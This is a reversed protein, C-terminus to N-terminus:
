SFAVAMVKQVSEDQEMAEAFAQVHPYSSLPKYTYNSWQSMVYAYADLVTKKDKYIHKKDVLMADLRNMVKDILVMAAERVQEISETDTATTYREPSFYPWFAPHFDGTLFAAIENFLFEDEAGLDPGLDAEPYKAVLYQLIANAQTKIVGPESELAPVAGSPNIKMYEPSGLEVAELEYDAGMWELAIWVAVACTGPAYYLKM